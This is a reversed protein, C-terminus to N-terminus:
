MFSFPIFIPTEFICGDSEFVASMRHDDSVKELDAYVDFHIHYPM